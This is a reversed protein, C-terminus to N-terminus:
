KKKSMLIENYDNFTLRSNRLSTSLMRSDWENEEEDNKMIEVSKCCLNKNEQALVWDGENQAKCIWGAVRMTEKWEEKSPYPKLVLVKTVLRWPRYKRGNIIIKKDLRLIDWSSTGGCTPVTEQPVVFEVSTERGVSHSIKEDGLRWAKSYDM